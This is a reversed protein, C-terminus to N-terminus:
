QRLNTAVNPFMISARKTLMVRLDVVNSIMFDTCDPPPRRNGSQLLGQERKELKTQDDAPAALVSVTQISFMEVALMILDMTLPTFADERVGPFKGVVVHGKGPTPHPVDGIGAIDRNLLFFLELRPFM